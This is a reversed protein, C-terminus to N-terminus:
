LHGSFVFGNVKCQLLCTIMGIYRGSIWDWLIVVAQSVFSVAQGGEEGRGGCRVRQQGCASILFVVGETLLSAELTAELAQSKTVPTRM